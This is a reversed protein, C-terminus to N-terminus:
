NSKKKKLNMLVLVLLGAAGLAVGIGALQLLSGAIVMAPGISYVLTVYHAATYNIGQAEWALSEGDPDAARLLAYGTANSGTFHGFMFMAKEFWDIECFKKSTFLLFAATFACVVVSMIAIPVLNDLIVRVNLSCIAGFVILDLIMGSLANISKREVYGDLKVARLLYYFIFCGIVDRAMAPITNFFPIVMGLLDFVKGGVFMGTLVMSLQLMLASVGVSPTVLNGISARKDEPLLGGLPTKDEAAAGSKIHATWGKRVGVNVLVIGVVVAVLLGVTSLVTGLAAYDTGGLSDQITGAAGAAVGHGGYFSTLAIYGWGEPLTPWVATLAMGAVVAVALQFGFGSMEILIFDAASRIRKWSIVLGFVMTGMIIRILSGAYQSFTEPMEMLGFGQSGCLLALLGAIMATSIYYKQFLKIKEHLLFAVFMFVGYIILDHLVTAIM